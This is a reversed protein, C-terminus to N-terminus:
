HSTAQRNSSPILSYSVQDKSRNQTLQVLRTWPRRKKYVRTATGGAVLQPSNPIFTYFSESRSPRCQKYLYDPVTGLELSQGVWQCRPAM